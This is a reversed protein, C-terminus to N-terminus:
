HFCVVFSFFFRKGEPKYGNLTKQFSERTNANVEVFGNVKSESSQWQGQQQRRQWHRQLRSQRARLRRCFVIIAVLLSLSVFVVGSIVYVIVMTETGLLSMGLSSGPGGVGSVLGDNPGLGLLFDNHLGVPPSADVILVVDTQSAQPRIGHDRAEIRLTHT